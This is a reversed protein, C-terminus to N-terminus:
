VGGAPAPALPGAADGTEGTLYERLLQRMLPHARLKALARKEVARVGRETLNLVAAVEAQSLPGIQPFRPSTGEGKRRRVRLRAPRAPQSSASPSHLSKMRM